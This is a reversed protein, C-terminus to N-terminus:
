EGRRRRRRSAAGEARGLRRPRSVGRHTSPRHVPADKPVTRQVPSINEFLRDITNM